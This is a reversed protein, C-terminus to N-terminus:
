YCRRRDSCEKRHYAEKHGYYDKRCGKSTLIPQLLRSVSSVSSDGYSSISMFDVRLDVGEIQRVLDAM